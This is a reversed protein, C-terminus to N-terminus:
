TNISGDGDIIGRLFDSFYAPPVDVKELILSKRVKLGINLLYRYFVVDSFQLVSYKKEQERDRSKKSIKSNLNLNAKVAELLNGDKSTISVHRGDKSLNGDTVILGIVYWLNEPKIYRLDVM